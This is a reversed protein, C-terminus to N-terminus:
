RDGSSDKIIGIHRAIDKVKAAVEEQVLNFSMAIIALGLVLYLCCVILQAHGEDSGSGTTKITRGPVYDGLGITSLTIFCFYASELFSWEEWVSFVMAGVMIYLVVFILVLSIPVRDGSVVVMMPSDCRQQIEKGSHLIGPPPLMESSIGSYEDLTEVDVVDPGGDGGSRHYQLLPVRSPTGEVQHVSGGGGGRISISGGGNAGGSIVSGGSPAIVLAQRCCSSNGGGGEEMIMDELPPPLIIDVMGDGEESIMLEEEIGAMAGMADAAHLQQLVMRSREDQGMTVNYEACERLMQKAAPDLGKLTARQERRQKGGITGGRGGTTAYIDGPPPPLGQLQQQNRYQQPPPQVVHTECTMASVSYKVQISSPEQKLSPSRKQVSRARASKRPCCIHNYAFKFTNAMLTGINSLWLLMLPVGIVAYFMTLVKGLATRPATNGYGAFFIHLVRSFFLIRIICDNSYCATKICM